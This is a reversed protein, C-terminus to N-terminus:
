LVNVSFNQKYAGVQGNSDLRRCQLYPYRSDRVEQQVRGCIRPRVAALGAVFVAIVIVIMM